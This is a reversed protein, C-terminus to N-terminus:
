FIVGARLPIALAARDRGIVLSPNIEIFLSTEHLPVVWGMGGHLAPGGEADVRGLPAYWGLGGLLYRGPGLVPVNLIGSVQPHFVWLADERGALIFGIFGVDTALSFDANLPFSVRGRLGIGLGDRVVRPNGLFLLAEFGGGFRPDLDPAQAQAKPPALLLLMAALALAATLRRLM